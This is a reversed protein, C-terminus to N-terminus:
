GDGDASPTRIEVDIDAMVTVLRDILERNAHHTGLWTSLETEIDAQSNAARWVAYSTAAERIFQSASMGVSSAQVSILEWQAESFRVSQVKMGM